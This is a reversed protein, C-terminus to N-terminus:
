KKEYVLADGFADDVKLETSSYSDVTWIIKGQPTTITIIDDKTMQYTGSYTNTTGGSYTLVELFKGTGKEDKTFTVVDTYNPESGNNTVLNWEGDVKKNLKVEKSCSALVVTLAVLVTLLKTM